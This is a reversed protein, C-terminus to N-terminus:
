EGLAKEIQVTRGGIAHSAQNAMSHGVFGIVLAFLIFRKM